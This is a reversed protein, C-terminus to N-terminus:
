GDKDPHASGEAWPVPETADLRKLFEDTAVPASVGGARAQELAERAGEIWAPNSEFAADHQSCADEWAAALLDDLFQEPTQGRASALSVAVLYRDDTLRLMHSM